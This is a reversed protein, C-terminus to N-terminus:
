RCCLAARESETEDSFPQSLEVPVMGQGQLRSVQRQIFHCANPSRETTYAAIGRPAFCFAPKIGAKQTHILM